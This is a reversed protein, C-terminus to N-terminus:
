PVVSSTRSQIAKIVGGMKYIGNECSQCRVVEIYVIFPPILTTEPIVHLEAAKGISLQCEGSFFIGAGSINICQGTYYHVEEALRYHVVYPIDMRPFRRKEDYELM